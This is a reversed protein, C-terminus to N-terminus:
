ERCSNRNKFVMNVFSVAKEEMKSIQMEVRRNLLTHFLMIPIAVSLGLMTTVLAESIGGSMMRPDGTGYYTIVHFTNIMGTVTGLLGLLPAIAALMGLTSLFREIHPIEGLIAEQLANEMDVRERDKFELATLLVKPILKKRKSELLVRCEDWRDENILKQIKLMFADANMRKRLMFFLRELLILFALGLIGVIPWVIPGGKPIQEWLSLEHTLQRLAGGKSIDMVVDGSEKNMYAKINAIMRASPLKSLAFFRRSQDSYLLFGTEDDLTYMGTFNGILLLDAMREKGQRDVISGRTLKVEGSAQIETFLLSVMHRIDEMSPFKEQNILPALFTHRELDLASQLSQILMSELDKANSRIFGSLERNVAQTEALSERVEDARSKTQEIDALLDANAKKLRQNKAKIANIAAMLSARDQKIKEEQAIAERRAAKLEQAAKEQMVKKQRALTVHTQRMDQAGAPVFTCCIVLAILVMGKHIIYPHKM